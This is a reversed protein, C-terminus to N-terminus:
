VASGSAIVGPLGRSHEWGDQGVSPSRAATGPPWCEMGQSNQEGAHDRIVVALEHLLIWMWYSVANSGSTHEKLLVGPQLIEM